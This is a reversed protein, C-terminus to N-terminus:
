NSMAIVNATIPPSARNELRALAAKSARNFNLKPMTKLRLSSGVVIKVPLYNRCIDPLDRLRLGDMVSQEIEIARRPDHANTACMFIGNGVHTLFLKNPAFGKKLAAAITKLFEVFEAASTNAFIEDIRDIKIAVLHAECNEARTVRELYNQFVSQSMIEDSTIEQSPEDQGVHDRRAHPFTLLQPKKRASQQVSVYSDIAAQREQVLREAIKIRTLVEFFEFPKTVYDTAGNAFAREVADHDSHKTIMIIPTNKYRMQARIEACLQIGDKGPMDVDLLICDYAIATDNITKLVDMPSPMLTVHEYGGQKLCEDLLDLSIQDDDVAIIKMAHAGKAAAKGM